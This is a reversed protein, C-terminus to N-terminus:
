APVIVPKAHVSNHHHSHAQPLPTKYKGPNLVKDLHKFAECHSNVLQFHLSRYENDKLRMAKLLILSKTLPARRYDITLFRGDDLHKAKFEEVTPETEAHFNKWRREFTAPDDDDRVPGDAIRKLRRRNSEEQPCDIYALIFSPFHELLLEAQLSKRPLGSILIKRINGLSSQHQKQVLYFVFGAFILYDDVLDGRQRVAQATIFSKRLPSHNKPDQHWDMIESMDTIVFGGVNCIALRMAQILTTKGCSAGSILSTVPIERQNKLACLSENIIAELDTRALIMRQIRGNINIKNASLM